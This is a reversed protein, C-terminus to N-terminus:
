GYFNYSTKTFRSTTGSRWPPAQPSRPYLEQEKKVGASSAPSHDAERGPRGKGGPFSGGTGVTCSAPHAGSGTHICLSSSVDEAETPSRVGTTWNSNMIRLDSSSKLIIFQFPHLLFPESDWKLHDVLTKTQTLSSFWQFGWYLPHLM